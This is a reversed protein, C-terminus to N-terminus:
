ESAVGFVEAQLTECIGDIMTQWLEENEATVDLGFARFFRDAGGRLTGHFAQHFDALAVEAELRPILDRVRVRHAVVKEEVRAVEKALDLFMKQALKAKGENGARIAEQYDQHTRVESEQVRKLTAEIGYESDDVAKLESREQVPLELAPPPGFDRKEEIAPAPDIRSTVVAGLLKAPCRQTM